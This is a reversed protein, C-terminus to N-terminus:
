RFPSLFTGLVRLSSLRRWVYTGAKLGDRNLRGRNKGNGGVESALEREALKQELAELRLLIRGNQRVMQWDLWCCFVAALSPLFFYIPLTM